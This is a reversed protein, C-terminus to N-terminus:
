MVTLSGPDIFFNHRRFAPPGFFFWFENYGLGRYAVPMVLRPDYAWEPVRKYRVGIAHSVYVALRVLDERNEDTVEPLEAVGFYEWIDEDSEHKIGHLYSRLIRFKGEKDEKMYETVFNM